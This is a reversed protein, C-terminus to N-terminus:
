EKLETFCRIQIEQQNGKQLSDPLNRYGSTFRDLGDRQCEDHDETHYLICKLVILPVFRVFLLVLSIGCNHAFTVMSERDSLSLLDNYPVDDSNLIIPRDWRVDKKQSCRVRLSLAEDLCLIKVSLGVQLNLLSM